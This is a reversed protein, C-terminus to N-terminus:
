NLEASFKLIGFYTLILVKGRNCINCRKLNKGTHLRVHLNLGKKDALKKNCIQCVFKGDEDKVYDVNEVAPAKKKIKDKLMMDFSEDLGEELEEENEEEIEEIEEEECENGESQLIEEEDCQEYSNNNDVQQQNSASSNETTANVYDFDGDDDIFPDADVFAIETKIGLGLYTNSEDFVADRKM